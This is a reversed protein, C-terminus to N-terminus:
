LCLQLASINDIICLLVIVFTVQDNEATLSRVLLHNAYRNQLLVDACLKTDEISEVAPRTWHLYRLALQPQKRTLLCQIICRHQWSAWPVAARPSLLLEMSAQPSMDYLLINVDKLCKCRGSTEFLFLGAVKKVDM